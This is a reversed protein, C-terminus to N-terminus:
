SVRLTRLFKSFYDAMDWPFKSRGLPFFAHLNGFIEWQKSEEGRGDKVWCKKLFILFFDWNCHCLPIPTIRWFHFVSTVRVLISLGVPFVGHLVYVDPDELQSSWGHLISKIYNIPIALYLNLTQKLWWTWNRFTMHMYRHINTLQDM